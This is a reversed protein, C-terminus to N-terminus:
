ARPMPSAKWTNLSTVNSYTKLLMLVNSLEPRKPTGKLTEDGNDQKIGWYGKSSVGTSRAQYGLVEQKIGWYEMRSYPRNKVTQWSVHSLEPKEVMREGM